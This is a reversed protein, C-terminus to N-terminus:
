GRRKPAQRFGKRATRMEGMSAPPHEFELAYWPMGFPKMNMKQDNKLRLLNDTTPDNPVKALLKALVAIADDRRNERLLMWAHVNHLLVHKRNFPGAAALRALADDKKGERYWLTALLLQADGARFGAKELAALAEAKAGLHHHLFGIQGYLQGKLLPVWNGIPLLSELTGIAPKLMGAEVQRQIQVM